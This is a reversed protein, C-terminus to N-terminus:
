LMSGTVILKLLRWLGDAFIGGGVAVMLLYAPYLYLVRAVLPHAAPATGRVHYEIAGKPCQEVCRGCKTCSLRTHGSQLSHEDLSFTPCSRVCLGCHSCKELDIRVDFVNIANSFSQMAGFPCFLGCQVRKRTLMPLVIVAAIFISFFLVTQFLTVLSDPPSFETVAKFPCLWTCYVSTLSLASTLVIALLLAYPLYTWRPDIKRIRAKKLLRSFGEDLGGYFCVWSCWGRGIALTAGLWLVFMGAVGYPGLLSGPFIVTRTLAAPILIMPIVLHCFPTDGSMFTEESLLMSGRVEVLHSIFSLVFALAFAVFFTARYRDIRGTRLMLFFLTVVGVWTVGASITRLPDDGSQAGLLFLAALLAVPLTLLIAKFVRPPRCTSLPAPQTTTTTM